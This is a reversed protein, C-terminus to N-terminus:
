DLQDWYFNFALKGLREQVAELACCGLNAASPIRCTRGLKTVKELLLTPNHASDKLLQNSAM